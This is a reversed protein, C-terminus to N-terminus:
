VGQGPQNLNAMKQTYKAHIQEDSMTMWGNSTKLLFRRGENDLCKILRAVLATKALRSKMGHYEKYYLLALNTARMNGPHSSLKTYHVGFKIDNPGPKDDDNDDDEDNDKTMEESHDEDDYEEDDHDEDDHNENSEDDNSEVQM